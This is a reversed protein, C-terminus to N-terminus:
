YFYFTPIKPPSQSAFLLSIDTLWTVQPARTDPKCRVQMNCHERRVALLAKALDNLHERDWKCYPFKFNKMKDRM